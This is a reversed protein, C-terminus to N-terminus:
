SVKNKFGQEKVKKMANAKAVETETNGNVLDNHGYINRGGAYPVLEIEKTEGPEFRVATSAIINLRKGFAKERDFEMMKNVEFFHFHSGVQIPRDGTNTVEIKTVERSENCIVHGDGIFFEGPIM